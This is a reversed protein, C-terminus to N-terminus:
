PEIREIKIAEDELLKLLSDQGIMHAAGVAIFCNGRQVFQSLANKWRQNRQAVLIDYTRMSMQDMAEDELKHIDGSRYARILEALQTVVTSQFEMRDRVLMAELESISSITQNLAEFAEDASELYSLKMEQESAKQVLYRDLQPPAPPLSQMLLAWQYNMAAIGPSFSELQKSDINPLASRLNAWATESLTQSLPDTNVFRSSPQDVIFRNLDHEVILHTTSEFARWVSNPLEKKPDIGIHITGLLYCSQSKHTLRWLFPSKIPEDANLFDTKAASGTPEDAGHICSLQFSGVLALSLALGLTATPRSRRFPHM